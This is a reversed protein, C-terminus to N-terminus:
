VKKVQKFTVCCRCHAARITHENIDNQSTCVFKDVVKNNRTYTALKKMKDGKILQKTPTSEGVSYSFNLLIPTYSTDPLPSGPSPPHPFQTPFPSLTCLTVLGFQPVEIVECSWRGWELALGYGVCGVFRNM